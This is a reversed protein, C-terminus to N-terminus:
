GGEDPVEEFFIVSFLASGVAGGLFGGLVGGTVGGIFDALVGGSDRTLLHPRRGDPKHEDYTTWPYNSWLQKSSYLIDATAVWLWLPKKGGSSLISNPALTIPSNSPSLLDAIIVLTDAQSRTLLGESVLFDAFKPINPKSQKYINYIGHAALGDALRMMIAVDQVKARAQEGDEALVQNAAKTILEIFKKRRIPRRDGLSHMSDYALVIRNHLDGIRNLATTSLPPGSFLPHGVEGTPALPSMESNEHCSSAPLLIFIIILAILFSPYTPKPIQIPPIGRDLSHTRKRTNRHM